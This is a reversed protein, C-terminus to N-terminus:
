PADVGPGHQEVAKASGDRGHIAVFSGTPMTHPGYTVGAAAIIDPLLPRHSCLVVRQGDKLMSQVVSVPDPTEESLAPNEQIEIGTTEAYPVLTQVCRLSPSSIVRDVGYALLVPVLSRAQQGGLESLPRDPDSGDWAKRAVSKAHRLVLLPATPEPDELLAEIVDVDRPYSLLRDAKAAPVFQTQAIEDTGQWEPAGDDARAAWFWVVKTLGEVEYHQTPLPRDLVIRHGTEEFVERVAAAAIHEGPDVKGKPLTWDDYRPRHVVLVEPGDGGPRWLLAGAAQIPEIV